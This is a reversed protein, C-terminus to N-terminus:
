IQKKLQEIEEEIEHRTVEMFRDYYAAKKRKEALIEKLDSIEKAKEERM